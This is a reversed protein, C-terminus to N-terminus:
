YANSVCFACAVIFSTDFIEADKGKSHEKQGDAQKEVEFSFLFYLIFNIEFM